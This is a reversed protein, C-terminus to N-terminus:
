KKIEEEWTKENCILPKFYNHIPIYFKPNRHVYTFAFLLGPLHVFYLQFLVHLAHSSIKLNNSFQDPSIQNDIFMYGQDLFHMSM